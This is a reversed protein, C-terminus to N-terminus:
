LPGTRWHKRAQNSWPLGPPPPSRPRLKGMKPSKTSIEIPPITHPALSHHYPWTVKNSTLSSWGAPTQTKVLNLSHPPFSQSKLKLKILSNIPKIRTLLSRYFGFAFSILIRQAQIFVSLIVDLWILLKQARPLGIVRLRPCTKPCLNPSVLGPPDSRARV